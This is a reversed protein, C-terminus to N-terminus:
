RAFVTKKRLIVTFRVAPTFVLLIVIKLDKDAAAATINEHCEFDSFERKFAIFM